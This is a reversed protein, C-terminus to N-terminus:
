SGPTPERPAVSASRVLDLLARVAGAVPAFAAGDSAGYTTVNVNSLNSSIAAAIEPLKEALRVQAQAAASTQAALAM